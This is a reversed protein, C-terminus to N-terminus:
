GLLEANLNDAMLVKLKDEVKVEMSRYGNIKYTYAVSYIM